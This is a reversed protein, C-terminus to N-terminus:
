LCKPVLNKSLKDGSNIASFSPHISLFNILYLRIERDMKGENKGMRKRRDSIGQGGQCKQGPLKM